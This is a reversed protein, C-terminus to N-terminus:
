TSLPRPAAELVCFTTPLMVVFSESPSVTVKVANDKTLPGPVPFVLWVSTALSGNWTELVPCSCNFAPWYKFASTCM